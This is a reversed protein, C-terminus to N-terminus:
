GNPKRPPGALEWDAFLPSIADHAVSSRSRLSYQERTWLIFASTGREVQAYIDMQPAESM